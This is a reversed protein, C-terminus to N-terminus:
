REIILDTAIWLLVFHHVIWRAARIRNGIADQRLIRVLSISYFALCDYANAIVHLVRTVTAWLLTVGRRVGM